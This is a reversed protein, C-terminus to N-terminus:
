VIYSGTNFDVWGISNLYFVGTFTKSATELKPTKWEMGSDYLVEAVDFRAESTSGTMLIAPGPTYIVAANGINESVLFLFFSVLLLFFRQLM